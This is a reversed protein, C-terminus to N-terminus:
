EWFIIQVKPHIIGKVIGTRKVLDVQLKLVGVTSGSFHGKKEIRHKNYGHWIRTDLLAHHYWPSDSGFVGNGEIVLCCLCCRLEAQCTPKGKPCPLCQCRDGHASARRQQLACQQEYLNKQWQSGDAALINLLPQTTIWSKPSQNSETIWMWIFLFRKSM